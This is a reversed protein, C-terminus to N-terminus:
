SCTILSYRCHLANDSMGLSSNAVAVLLRRSESDPQSVVDSVGVGNVDFEGACARVRVDPGDRHRQEIVVGETGLRGDALLSDGDGEAQRAVFNRDMQSGRLAVCCDNQGGILDQAEGLFHLAEDSRFILLNCSVEQCCLEAGKQRLLSAVGASLCGPWRRLWHLTAPFAWSNV